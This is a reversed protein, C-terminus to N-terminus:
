YQYFLVSSIRIWAIFINNSEEIFLFFELTKFCYKVNSLILSNYNKIKRFARSMRFFIKFLKQRKRIIAYEIDSKKRRSSYKKLYTFVFIQFNEM